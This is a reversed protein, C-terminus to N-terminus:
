TGAWTDRPAYDPLDNKGTYLLSSTDPLLYDEWKHNVSSVEELAANVNSLHVLVGDADDYGERCFAVNDRFSFEYFSCKTEGAEVIPVMNQWITKFEQLKGENVTFYPQVTVCQKSM